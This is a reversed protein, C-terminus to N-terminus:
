PRSVWPAAGRVRRAPPLQEVTCQRPAEDPRWRLLTTGHRFRGASVQDFRVEVVRQPSVPERTAKVRAMGTSALRAHGERL